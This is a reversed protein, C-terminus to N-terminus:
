YGAQNTLERVLVSWTVYGETVNIVQYIKVGIKFFREINESLSTGDIDSLGYRHKSINKLMIDGSKIVGGERTKIDQSFKVIKPTPLMQITVDQAYLSDPTLAPITFGSDTYWTRTVLYVPEVIAGIKDRIGLIADIGSEITTVVGPQIAPNQAGLTGVKKNGNVIYPVGARVNSIGPDTSILTGTEATGGSVYKIGQMVNYAGPDISIGGSAIAFIQFADADPARTVDTPLKVVSYNHGVIGTYQGFYVGFAVYVMGIVSSTSLTLDYVTANVALLANQDFAAYNFNMQSNNSGLPDYQQAWPARTLDPTTFGSDSFVSTIVLYSQGLAPTFSAEYVGSSEDSMPIQGTVLVPAGTTVNYVFGAVNLGSAQDYTPYIFSVPQGSNVLM